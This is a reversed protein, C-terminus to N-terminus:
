PVAALSLGKQAECGNGEKDSRAGEPLHPNNVPQRKDNSQEKGNEAYARVYQRRVYSTCFTNYRVIRLIRHLIM